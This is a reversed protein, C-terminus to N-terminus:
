PTEESLIAWREHDRWRGAIKLYRPSFGELRFGCRMVLGISRENAPQINAELRHLRMSAFAHRMVLGLGETMLGKGAQPAFAYFGLYASRFPGLVIQSVNIVGAISGEERECVLFSRTDTRRARVLHARFAAPTAPPSVWSGHLKKSARVRTLFEAEDRASPERIFTREGTGLRRTSGAM